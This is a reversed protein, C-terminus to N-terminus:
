QSVRGKSRANQTGTGFRMSSVARFGGEVCSAARDRQLLLTQPKEIYGKFAQLWTAGIAGDVVRHDCSLTVTMVSTEKPAGDKGVVVKKESTGCALIASQPPNIIACFSKTGYMGLNSITFTGDSFEDPKLKNDKAKGALQKVETSIASLGKLDADRVVPVMLGVHTQVAISIDVNEYERIFDGHWSANVQPVKKLAAASAKVIFDNVSLKVGEKELSANLGARLSMLEDVNCEMSLYYHPM